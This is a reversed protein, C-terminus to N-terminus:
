HFGETTLSYLHCREIHYIIFEQLLWLYLDQTCFSLNLNQNQWQFGPNDQWTMKCKLHRNRCIDFTSVLIYEIDSGPCKSMFFFFSLHNEFWLLLIIFLLFFINWLDHHTRQKRSNQILLYIELYDVYYLSLPVKYVLCLWGISQRLSFCSYLEHAM